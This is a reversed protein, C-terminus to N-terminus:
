YAAPQYKRSLGVGRYYWCLIEHNSPLLADSRNMSHLRFNDHSKIEIAQVCEGWEFTRRHHLKRQNKTLHSACNTVSLFGWVRQWPCFCFILASFLRNEINGLFGVTIRSIIPKTSLDKRCSKRPQIERILCRSITAVWSQYIRKFCHNKILFSTCSWVYSNHATANSLKLTSSETSELYMPWALSVACENANEVKRRLHLLITSWDSPMSM